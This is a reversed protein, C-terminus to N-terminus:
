AVSGKAAEEHMAALEADRAKVKAISPRANIRAIYAVKRWTTV